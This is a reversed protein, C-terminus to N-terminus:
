EIAMGRPAEAPMQVETGSSVLAWGSVERRCLFTVGKRDRALAWGDRVEVRLGTREQASMRMKQGLFQRVEEMALKEQPSRQESVAATEEAIREQPSKCCVALVLLGISGALRWADM